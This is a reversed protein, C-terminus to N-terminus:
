HKWSELSFYKQNRHKYELLCATVTSHRGPAPIVILPNSVFWLHCVCMPWVYPDCLCPACLCPACVPRDPAWIVLTVHNHHQLCFTAIRWSQVVNIICLTANNQQSLHASLVPWVWHYHQQYPTLVLRFNAVLDATGLELSLSQPNVQVNALPWFWSNQLLVIRTTPSM